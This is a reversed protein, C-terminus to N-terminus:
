LVLCSVCMFAVVRLTEMWQASPGRFRKPLMAIDEARAHFPKNFGTFHTMRDDWTHMEELAGQGHNLVFYYYYLLGQEVSAGYFDWNM